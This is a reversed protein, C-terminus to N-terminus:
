LIRFQKRKNITNIYRMGDEEVYKFEATLVKDVKSLRQKRIEFTNKMDKSNWELVKKDNVDVIDAFRNRLVSTMMYFNFHVEALFMFIEEIFDVTEDFDEDTEGPFGIIITIDVEIGAAYANKIIKEADERKYPKYMMKLVNELASELGFCLNAFGAKKMKSLLQIDMKMIKAFSHFFVKGNTRDDNIILDCLEDLMQLDQNCACDCLM